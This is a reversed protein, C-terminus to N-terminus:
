KESPSNQEIGEIDRLLAYGNKVKIHAVLQGQRSLEELKTGTNEPVFFRELNFDVNLIMINDEDLYPYGYMRGTLYLADSPKKDTLEELIFVQNEQVLKGYVKTPKYTTKKELKKLLAETVKKKPVEEIEYRLTVYDGYLLDRPDVPVTLLSIDEGSTMTWLPKVTLSLLIILPVALVIIFHFKKNKM